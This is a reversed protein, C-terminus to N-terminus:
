DNKDGFYVVTTHSKRLNDLEKLSEFERSDNGLARRCVAAV